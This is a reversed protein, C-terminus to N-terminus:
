PTVESVIRRLNISARKKLQGLNGVLKQGSWSM